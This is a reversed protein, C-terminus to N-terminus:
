LSGSISVRNLNKEGITKIAFDLKSLMKEKHTNLMGDIRVSDFPHLAWFYTGELELNAIFEREEELIEKESAPIFEGNLIQENLRTDKFASMTNLLIKSPKIENELRAMARASESAMGHGATGLMLLDCHSIGIKNLRLCQTKSDDADYGKGLNRMVANLGSEIGIYLDDVGAEKLAILEEDSKAAINDIRAYMTITKINPLYKKILEIRALLKKTGLAFPDGGVLYIRTAERAYSGHFKVIEALFEEVQALSLMRFKVNAYMNCYSCSNHSCGETIPLLLTNAEVPPRYITGNYNM